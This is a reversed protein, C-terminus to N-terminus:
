GAKVPQLQAALQHIPLSPASAAGVGSFFFSYWAASLRAFSVPAQSGTSSSTVSMMNLWATLASFSNRLVSDENLGGEFFAPPGLGVILSGRGARFSRLTM